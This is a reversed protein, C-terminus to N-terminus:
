RADNEALFARVRVSEKPLLLEDLWTCLAEKATFHQRKGTSAAESFLRQMQLSMLASGSGLIGSRAIYANDARMLSVLRQSAEQSFLHACRFDTCIIAPRRAHTTVSTLVRGTEAAWAEIEELSPSGEIRLEVLAGVTCRAILV